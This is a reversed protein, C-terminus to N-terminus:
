IIETRITVRASQKSLETADVKETSDLHKVVSDVIMETTIMSWCASNIPCASYWCPCPALSEGMWIAVANKYHNVRAAPHTPGFISVTPVGIAGALHLLSSDPCLVMDCQTMVGAIERVDVDRLLASGPVNDWLVDTSFDSSHKVIISKIGYINYLETVAKKMKSQDLSRRESSAFPQVMMIKNPLMPEVFEKGVQIEDKRPFYRPTTDTLKVGAHKAFLDIRNVPPNEPKEYHVCPCHLNIVLDYRGEDLLEREIIETIDPNYQLVKVLAGQLYRTNTAYTIEVNEFKEKLARVTPTTMIVDGLGEGRVVCIKPQNTKLLKELRSLRVAPTRQAQSPIFPRMRSPICVGDRNLTIKQRM